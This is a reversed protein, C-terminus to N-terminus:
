KFGEAKCTATFTIVDGNRVVTYQMTSPECGYHFARYASYAVSSPDSCGVLTLALVAFAFASRM